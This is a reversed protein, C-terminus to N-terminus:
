VTIGPLLIERELLSCIAQALDGDLLPSDDLLERVSSGSRSRSLVEFEPESVTEASLVERKEGNVRLVSTAEPLRDKWRYWEDVSVMGDMMAADIQRDVTRSQNIGDGPLVRFTAAQWTLMRYLAKTGSVPGAWAHVVNGDEFYVAGEEVSDNLYIAGNRGNLSLIQLLDPLSLHDVTGALTVGDGRRAKELQRRRELVREVRAYLEEVEFPKVVYDDAGMHFGRLKQPLERETTLFIFPIEAFRPIVRVKGFLEWGDIGPMLIDSVIIDPTHFELQQMAMDADAARLVEYNMPEFYDTIIQVILRSDDVILLKPSRM